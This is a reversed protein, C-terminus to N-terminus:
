RKCKRDECSKRYRGRTMTRRMRGPHRRSRASRFTPRQRPGTRLGHKDALDPIGEHPAKRSRYERPACGAWRRFARTFNAHDSYGLDLALELIKADTRELVAAATAFRAQAVLMHHSAGAQALRRQLTRVSMGVFEATTRITPYEEGCSLTEIAQRISAVFDRASSSKGEEVAPDAVEIRAPPALQAFGPADSPAEVRALAPATIFQCRSDRGDPNENSAHENMIGLDPEHPEPNFAHESEYSVDSL